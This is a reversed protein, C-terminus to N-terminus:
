GQNYSVFPLIIWKDNHYNSIEVIKAVHHMGLLYYFLSLLTNNNIKHHTSIIKNKQKEKGWIYSDGFWLCNLHFLFVTRVESM